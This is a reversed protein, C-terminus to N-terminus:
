RQPHFDRLLIIQDDFKYDFRESEKMCYNIAENSYSIPDFSVEGSPCLKRWIRKIKRLAELLRDPSLRVVCHAHVNLNPKEVFAVGDIRESIPKKFWTKGLLKRELGRFFKGILAKMKAEDWSKNNTTLTLMLNPNMKQSLVTYQERLEQNTYM